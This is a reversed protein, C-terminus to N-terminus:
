VQYWSPYVMCLALCCAGVDQSANESSIKRWYLRPLCAPLSKIYIDRVAIFQVSLQRVRRAILLFAYLDDWVLRMAGRKREGVNYM